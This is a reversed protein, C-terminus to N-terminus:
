FSAASSLYARYYSRCTSVSKSESVTTINRLIDEQWICSSLFIRCFCWSDLTSVVQAMRSCGKLERLFYRHLLYARFYYRCKKLESFAAMYHLLYEQLICINLLIRYLMLFRHHICCSCKKFVRQVRKSFVQSFAVSPFLM